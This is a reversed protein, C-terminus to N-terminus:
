KYHEFTQHESSWSAFFPPSISYKRPFCFFSLVLFAVVLTPGIPVQPTTAGFRSLHCCQHLFLSLM